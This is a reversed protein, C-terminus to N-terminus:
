ISAQLVFLYQEKEYPYFRFVLKEACAQAVEILGLGSNSKNEFRLSSKLTSRHLEKLEITDLSTLYELKEELLIKESISVINGAFIDMESKNKGLMFVGFRSEPDETSKAHKSINQLVEVTVHSARIARRHSEVKDKANHEALELLPLISKQSFDGKYLLVLNEKTMRKYFERSDQLLIAHDAGVGPMKSITIQQHFLSYNDDVPDIHHLIKQGSKRAMEILGLGAGGKASMTNNKLSNLYLEKLDQENLSNVQAVLKELRPIEHNHIFNISNIIFVGPMSKFSFMGEDQRVNEQRNLGEGHKLVNQFCEVLMFSVKKGIGEQNMKAASGNSVDLITNTFKDLFPGRYYFSLNQGNAREYFYKLTNLRM